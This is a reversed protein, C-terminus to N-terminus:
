FTKYLNTLEILVRAEPAILLLSLNYLYPLMQYVVYILGIYFLNVPLSKIIVNYFNYRRNDRQILLNEYETYSEKNELEKFVPSNVRIFRGLRNTVVKILWIILLGILIPYSDKVILYRVFAKYMSNTTSKTFEWLQGLKGSIKPEYKSIFEDINTIAPTNDVMTTNQVFLSDTQAFTTISIFMLLAISLKLFINKM